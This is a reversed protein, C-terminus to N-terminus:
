TIEGEEQRNRERDRNISNHPHSTEIKISVKDVDDM